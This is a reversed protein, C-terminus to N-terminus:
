KIKVSFKYEDAIEYPTFAMRYLARRGKWDDRIKEDYLTITEIHLAYKENDYFIDAGNVSIKGGNVQPFDALMLYFTVDKKERLKVSDSVEFFGNAGYECIIKREFSEIGAEDPYAKEINLSVSHGGETFNCGFNQAKRHKGYEQAYGDIVPLSHYPSQMTWITYRESSFTKATYTECGPDIVIPQKNKYVMFAGVDNHNHSEDNHGGKCATYLGSEDDRSAAVELYKLHTQKEEISTNEFNKIEEFGFINKLKRYFMFVADEPQKVCRFYRAGFNKLMDSKVNKGFRYIVGASVSPRPSGDAFNIFTDDFLNAHAIYEGINKVLEDSYLDIKGNSIDYLGELADFLSAGAGNWYGPGEDCGGDPKYEAIFRDLIIMFRQILAVKEYGESFISAAPIVNSIIWPVWNNVIHGQYGMWPMAEGDLFPKLIRRKIEFRIRECIYKSTDDFSDEFFYYAFSLVSATEAAFLDVMKFNVSMPLCEMKGDHLKQNNHAPIVWSFEDCIGYSYDLIAKYFRGKNECCEAIVLDSLNKRCMFFRDEFRTRNGDEIYAMYESATFRPIPMNMAEEARKIYYAKAESDVSDWIERECRKPFPKFEEKTLLAERLFYESCYKEFM